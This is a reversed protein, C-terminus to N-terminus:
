HKKKEELYQKFEKDSVLTVNVMKVGPNNFMRTIAGTLQRDIVMTEVLVQGLRTVGELKYFM